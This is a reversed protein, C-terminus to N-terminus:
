YRNTFQKHQQYSLIGNLILSFGVAPPAGSEGRDPHATGLGAQRGLPCRNTQAPMTRRVTTPYCGDQPRSLPGSPAMPASAGQLPGSRVTSRELSPM